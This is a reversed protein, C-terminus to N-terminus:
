YEQYSIQYHQRHRDREEIIINSSVPDYEVDCTISHENQVDNDVKTSTLRINNCYLNITSSSYLRGM